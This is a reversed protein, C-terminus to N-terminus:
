ARVASAQGPQGLLTDLLKNGLINDPDLKARYENFRQLPFHEALAARMAALRQADEPVEIKAWHWSAGYQPMLQDQVMGAYQRFRDTIAQRQQPDETPLYMIIGVWSHVTDAPLRRQSGPGAAAPSMPSSSSATWRQEIPSHAPVEAAEINRLLDQMYKIDTNKSRWSSTASSYSGVPLAVELVWQQGGCDFGLIQDAYGVRKGSSRKWFEAEAQNVQEVWAKSLPDLVLLADRLEFASLEAVAEAPVNAASVLLNRLPELRHARTREDVAEEEVVDGYASMSAGTAGAAADAEAVFRQLPAAPKAPPGAPNVQVVVVSDTYPLWMYRMHKNSRLWSAHNRAVEKASAVFTKEQLKQAPVAQLTLETVVGLCGLGVRAMKFLEPDDEANLELTGGAPTVLKMAVVQEDVPPITAGTGHASVQTFGGIQQERISAYNQLNLGYRKLEDAVQQVRCGAEVRVRMSDPDVWLVRDLLAMSMMGQDSFGVGNPSLGSGLVRLRRKARACDAVIAVVDDQNEPQYYFRPQATHTASWNVVSEGSVAVQRPSSAAGFQQEDPEYFGWALVGAISLPLATVLFKSFKRRLPSEAEIDIGQGPGTSFYRPRWALARGGSCQQTAFSQGAQRLLLLRSAAQRCAM